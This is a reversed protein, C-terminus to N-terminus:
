ILSLDVKLIEEKHFTRANIFFLVVDILFIAISIILLTNAILSRIGLESAVYIVGFPLTILAALTQASRVDSARASIIVSIETSLIASLPATLLLKIGITWNPFYLYTLVSFSYYPEFQAV